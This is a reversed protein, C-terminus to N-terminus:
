SSGIKMNVFLETLGTKEKLVNPEKKKWKRSTKLLHGAKQSKYTCSTNTKKLFEAM